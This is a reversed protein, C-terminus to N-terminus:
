CPEGKPPAPPFPATGRPNAQWATHAAGESGGRLACVACRSSGEERWLTGAKPAADPFASGQSPETGQPAWTSAKWPPEQGLCPKRCPVAVRSNSCCSPIYPHHSLLSKPQFKGPSCFAKILCLRCPGLLFKHGESPLLGLWLILFPEQHPSFGM